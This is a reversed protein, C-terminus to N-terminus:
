EAAKFLKPKVDNSDKEIFSKYFLKQLITQTAQIGSDIELRVFLFGLAFRAYFWLLAM